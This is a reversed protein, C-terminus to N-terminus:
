GGKLKDDKHMNYAITLNGNYGTKNSVFLIIDM